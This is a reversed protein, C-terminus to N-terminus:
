HGTEQPAEKKKEQEKQKERGERKHRNGDPMSTMQPMVPPAPSLLVFEDDYCSEKGGM